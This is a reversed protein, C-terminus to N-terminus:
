TFLSMLFFFLPSFRLLYLYRCHHYSYSYYVLFIFLLCVRLCTSLFCSLPTQTFFLSCLRHNCTSSSLVVVTCAYKYTSLRTVIHSFHIITGYSWVHPCIPWFHSCIPSHFLPVRFLGPSWRLMTVEVTHPWSSSYIHLFYLPLISFYFLSPITAIYFLNLIFFIPAGTVWTM